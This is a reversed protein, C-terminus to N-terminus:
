DTRSVVQVLYERPGEATPSLSFVVSGGALGGTLNSQQISMRRDLPFETPCVFLLSAVDVDGEVEGKQKIHCRNIKQSYERESNNMRRKGRKEEKNRL